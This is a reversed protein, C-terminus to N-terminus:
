KFITWLVSLVLRIIIYAAFIVVIWIVINVLRTQVKKYVSDNWRSSILLVWNYIILVVAISLAFFWIWNIYESTISSKTVDSLTKSVGWGKFDGEVWKTRVPPSDAGAWASSVVSNILDMPTDNEVSNTPTVIIDSFSFGVFILWILILIIKKM